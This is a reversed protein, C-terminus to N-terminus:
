SAYRFVNATAVNVRIERETDAAVSELEAEVDFPTGFFYLPKGGVTGVQPELPLVVPVGAALEAEDLQEDEYLEAVETFINGINLSM